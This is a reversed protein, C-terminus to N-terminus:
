TEFPIGGKTIKTGSVGMRRPMFIAKLMARIPRTVTRTATRDTIASRPNECVMPAMLWLTSEILWSTSLMLWPASEILWRSAGAAMRVPLILACSVRQWTSSRSRRRRRVSSCRSFVRSLSTASISSRFLDISSSRGKEGAGGGSDVRVFQRAQQRAEPLGALGDDLFRQL